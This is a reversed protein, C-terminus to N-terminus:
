VLFAWVGWLHIGLKHFTVAILRGMTIQWKAVINEIHLVTRPACIKKMKRMAINKFM